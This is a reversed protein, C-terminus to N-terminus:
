HSESEGSEMSELGFQGSRSGFALFPSQDRDLPHSDLSDASDAILNLVSGLVSIM